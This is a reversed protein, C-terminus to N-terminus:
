SSITAPTLLKANKVKLVSTLVALPTVDGVVTVKKAAFEIKFSTVGEIKSIHKKMKRECGRCHLSVELVVVQHSSPPSPQQPPPVSVLNPSKPTASFMSNDRHKSAEYNNNNAMILPKPPPSSPLVVSHDDDLKNKSPNGKQSDLPGHPQPPQSIHGLQHDSSSYNFTADDDHSLLFRSSSEPNNIVENHDEAAYAVNKKKHDGSDVHDPTLNPLDDLYAQDTTCTTSTITITSSSPFLIHGGQHGLRKEGRIIPNHRDIARGGGDGEVGFTTSSSSCPQDELVISDM